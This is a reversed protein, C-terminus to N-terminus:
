RWSVVGRRDVGLLPSEVAAVLEPSKKLPTRVEKTYRYAEVEAKSARGARGAEYTRAGPRRARAKEKLLAQRANETAQEANNILVPNGGKRATALFQKRVELAKKAARVRDNEEPASASELAAEMAAIKGGLNRALRMYGPASAPDALTSFAYNVAANQWQRRLENLEQNLVHTESGDTAVVIQFNKKDM